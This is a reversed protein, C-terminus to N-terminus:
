HTPPLASLHVMKESEFDHFGVVKEEEGDVHLLVPLCQAAVKRKM